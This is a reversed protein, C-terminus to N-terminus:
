LFSYSKQFLYISIILMLIGLIYKIYKPKKDAIWKSSIYSGISNGIILGVALEWDIRGYYLFIVISSIIFLLGILSKMAISNIFSFKGIQSLAFLMILGTGAQIFGGYIGIFFFAIILIINKRNKLSAELQNLNEKDKKILTFIGMLFTVIALIQNFYNEQIKIAIFSGVIAGLSATIGIYITLPFPIIKKKIFQRTSISNQFLIGIRITGNAVSPSLGMFILLPLMIFSGGGAITNIVGTVIGTILIIIFDM